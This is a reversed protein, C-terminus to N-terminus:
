KMKRFTAETGDTDSVKMRDEAIAITEAHTTKGALPEDLQFTVANGPGLLYKGSFNKGGAYYIMTGDTRFTLRLFGDPVSHGKITAQDSRWSTGEIKGRNNSSCGVAFALPLFLLLRALLAPRM